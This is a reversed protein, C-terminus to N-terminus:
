VGRMGAIRDVLRKLQDIGGCERALAFAKDILDVPSAAPKRGPRPGPKRRGNGAPQAAAAAPVKKAHARKMAQRHMAVDQPTVKIKDSKREGAENLM